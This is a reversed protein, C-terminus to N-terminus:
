AGDKSTSARDAVTQRRRATGASPAQNELADLREEILDLRADQESNKAIFNDLLSTVKHEVAQLISALASM